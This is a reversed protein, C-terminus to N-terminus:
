MRAVVVALAVNLVDNVEAFVAVELATEHEDLVVVDVDRALHNGAAVDPQVIRPTREFGGARAAHFGAAVATQVEADEVAPPAFAVVARVTERDAFVRVRIRHLFLVALVARIKELRDGLFDDREEVFAVGGANRTLPDLADAARHDREHRLERRRA